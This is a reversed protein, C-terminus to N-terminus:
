RIDRGFRPPERDVIQKREETKKKEKRGRKRGDGIVSHLYATAQTMNGKRKKNRIAPLQNTSRFKKEEGSDMRAISFM